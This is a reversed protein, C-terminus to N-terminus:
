FYLLIASAKLKWEVDGAEAVGNGGGEKL